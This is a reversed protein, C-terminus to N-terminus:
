KHIKALLRYPRITNRTGDTIWEDHAYIGKPVRILYPNVRCMIIVGSSYGSAYNLHPSCYTGEGCIPFKEKSLVNINKYDKCKQGTAGEKITSFFKGDESCIPKVANESTGHYAVAWEKPSGNNGIWENNGNDYQGLVRLGFGVWNNGPPSYDVGGRKQGPKSWEEPKRNGRSDLMNPSLKCTTLINKAKISKINSDSNALEKMKELINIVKEKDKYEIKKFFVDFTITKEDRRINTIIIQDEPIGTRNSIKKKWEDIFRKQEDVKNIILYTKNQDIEEVNIEYKNKNLMNSSIIQNTIIYDDTKNNDSIDIVIRIGLTELSEGLIGLAVVKEDKNSLAEKLDIFNEPHDLLEEEIMKEIEYGYKVILEQMEDFDVNNDPNKILELIKNKLEKIEKEEQSEFNLDMVKVLIIINKEPSNKIFEDVTFGKNVKLGNSFFMLQKYNKGVKKAYNHLVEAMRETLKCKIIEQEAKTTLFTIETM